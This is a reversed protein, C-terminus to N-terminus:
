NWYFCAPNIVLGPIELIKQTGKHWNITTSTLFYGEKLHKMLDKKLEKWVEPDMLDKFKESFERMKEIQEDESLQRWTKQKPEDDGRVSDNESLKEWLHELPYYGSSNVTQLNKEANEEDLAAGKRRLKLYQMKQLRADLISVQMNKKEPGVPEPKKKEPRKFVSFDSHQEINLKLYHGRLQHFINDTNSLYVDFEM